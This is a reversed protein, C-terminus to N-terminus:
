LGVKETSGATLAHVVTSFASALPSSSRPRADFRSFRFATEYPTAVEYDAASGEIAGEALASTTMTGERPYEDVRGFRAKGSGDWGQGIIGHPQVALATDRVRLSLQLDLRHTPGSVRDYVPMKILTLNFEPTLVVIAALTADVTVEDCYVHNHPAVPKRWLPDRSKRLSCSARVGNWGIWNIPTGPSLASTANFSVNLYRNQSTRVVVYAETLFTGHVTINSTHRQNGDWKPAGPLRFTAETTRVNLTVNRASLFTWLSGHKGRFDAQGGYPLALHPDGQSSSSPTAAVVGHSAGSSVGGGLPVCDFGTSWGSAGCALVYGNAEYGEACTPNCIYGSFQNECVTLSSAVVNSISPIPDNCRSVVGSAGCSAVSLDFSFSVSSAMQCPYEPYPCPNLNVDTGTTYVTYTGTPASTIEAYYHTKTNSYSGSSHPVSMCSGATDSAAVLKVGSNANTGSPLKYCTVVADSALVSSPAYAALDDAPCTGGRQANSSVFSDFAFSTTAGNPDQIHVQGPVASGAGPPSHYTGFWFILRQQSCESAATSTCVNTMHGSVGVLTALLLM